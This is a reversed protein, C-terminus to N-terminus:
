HTTSSDAATIETLATEIEERSVPCSKSDISLTADSRRYVGSPDGQVPDANSRRINSFLFDAAEAVNTANVDCYLELGNKSLENVAEPSRAELQLGTLFPAVRFNSDDAGELAVKGNRKIIRANCSEAISASAVNNLGFIAAKVIM